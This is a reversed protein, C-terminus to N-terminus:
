KSSKLMRSPEIAWTVFFARLDLMKASKRHVEVLSKEDGALTKTGNGTM